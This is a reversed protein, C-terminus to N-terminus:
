TVSQPHLKDSLVMKALFYELNTLRGFGAHFFSTDFHNMSLSLYRLHQFRFLNSNAKITGNICAGRLNLETVAGTKEDFSVGDFSNADKTWSTINASPSQLVGDALKRDCNRSPFENKFALLIEVQDRPVSVSVSTVFICWFSCTTLLLVAFPSIM